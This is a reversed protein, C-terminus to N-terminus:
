EVVGDRLIPQFGLSSGVLTVPTARRAGRQFAAQMEQL